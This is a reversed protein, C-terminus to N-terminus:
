VTPTLSHYRVRSYVQYGATEYLRRAPPNEADVDLSLIEAGNSILHHVGANFIARGLGSGRMEPSVGVMEIRGDNDTLTTWIYASLASNAHNTIVSIPPFGNREADTAARGIIEDVTNPSFGWSDSFCANHLDTVAHAETIDSMDATRLTQSYPLTSKQLKINEVSVRMKLVERIPEFNSAGITEPLILPENDRIAIHLECQANDALAVAREITHQLLDPLIDRLYEPLVAIGLLIRGINLEPEVLSYGIPKGDLYAIAWRGADPDLRPNDLASLLGAVDDTPWERHGHPGALRLIQFLHSVHQRTINRIEM